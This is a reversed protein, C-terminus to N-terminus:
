ELTRTELNQNTLGPLQPGDMAPAIEVRLKPMGVDEEM